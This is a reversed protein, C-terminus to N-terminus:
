ALKPNALPNGLEADVPPAMGNACSGVASAAAAAAAAAAGGVLFFLPGQLMKGAGAGNNGGDARDPGSQDLHISSQASYLFRKSM